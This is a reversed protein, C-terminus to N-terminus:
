HQYLLDRVEAVSISTLAYLNSEPVPPWLLAFTERLSASKMPKSSARTGVPFLEKVDPDERSSRIGTQLFFRYAQWNSKVLLPRGQLRNLLESTRTRQPIPSAYLDLVDSGAGASASIGGASLGSDPTTSNHGPIAVTALGSAVVLEDAMDIEDTEADVSASSSPNTNLATWRPQSAQPRGQSSEAPLPSPVRSQLQSFNVDPESSSGLAPTSQASMPAKAQPRGQSSVASLPSAVRSQPQSLNITPESSSGLAPTSRAPM